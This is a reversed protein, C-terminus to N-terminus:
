LILFGVCLIVIIIVLFKSIYLLFQFKPRIFGIVTNRAHLQWSLVACSPDLTGFLLAPLFVKIITDANRDFFWTFNFNSHLEMQTTKLFTIIIQFQELFQYYYIHDAFYEENNTIQYKITLQNTITCHTQCSRALYKRFTLLLWALKM